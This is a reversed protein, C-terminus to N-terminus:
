ISFTYFLYLLIWVIIPIIAQTNKYNLARKQSIFINILYWINLILFLSDEMYIPFFEIAFRLYIFVLNFPAIVRVFQLFTIDNKFLLADCFTIFIPTSFCFVLLLISFALYLVIKNDTPANKMFRCIIPLLVFFLLIFLSTFQKDVTKNKTNEDQNLAPFFFRKLIKM